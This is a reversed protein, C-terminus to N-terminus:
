HVPPLKPDAARGIQAELRRLAADVGEGIGLQEAIARISAILEHDSLKDLDANLNINTRAFMGLDQGLAILADHKSALKVKLTGNETESIESIAFAAEDSITASPKLKVGKEDWTFVDRPDYFALKALGEKIRERTVAYRDMVRETREEARREAEAVILAIKPNQLLRHAEVAAVEASAKTGYTARYAETGNRGNSLYVEVFRRQKPTLDKPM